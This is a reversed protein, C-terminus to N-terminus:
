SPPMRSREEEELLRYAVKGVPTQPLRTRFAIEGPIAYPPLHRRCHELLAQRTAETPLVGEAPVVFAKVKQMKYPDPLGIVCSMGVAPHADLLQELRSPYINYGSSVIMRKIRQKFYVFGDEDMYGLDGTHLYVKGDDHLRLTQSTEKPNNIYGKM